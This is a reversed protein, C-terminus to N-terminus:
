AFVLKVKDVERDEIEKQLHGYIKNIMDTNSHGVQKAIYNIQIGNSILTSIYSHRLKHVSIAGIGRLKLYQHLKENVTSNFIHKDKEHLLPLDSDSLKNKESYEHYEFLLKEITPDINVTRISSLNKTPMFGGTRTKYNWTKNISLKGDSVDSIQIGMVESIRAGTHIAVALIMLYTQESIPGNKFIPEKNLVEELKFDLYNKFGVFEKMDLWKKENKKDSRKEPSWSNEVSHIVINTKSFGTIFGDDVAYNLSSYILNKFDTVTQHQRTKGYEDLMFQLVQRNNELDTLKLEHLNNELWKKTLQYKYYTVKTVFDKKYNVAFWDFYEWFKMKSVSSVIKQKLSEVEVDSTLYEM